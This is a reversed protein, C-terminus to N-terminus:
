NIGPHIRRHMRDAKEEYSLLMARAAQVVMGFLEKQEEPRLNVMEVVAQALAIAHDMTLSESRM